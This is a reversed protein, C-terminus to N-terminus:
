PGGHFTWGGPCPDAPNSLNAARFEWWQGLLHVYCEDLFTEPGRDTFSIGYKPSVGIATFNVFHGEATSRPCVSYPAALPGIHGTRVTSCSAAGTATLDGHSLNHLTAEATHTAASHPGLSADSVSLVPVGASCGALGLAIGLAGARLAARRVSPLTAM